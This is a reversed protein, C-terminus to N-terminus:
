FPRAKLERVLQFHNKSTEVFRWEFILQVDDDIEVKTWGELLYMDTEVLQYENKTVFIIEGEFYCKSGEPLQNIQIKTM